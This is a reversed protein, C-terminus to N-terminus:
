RDRDHPIVVAADADWGLAITADPVPPEHRWTPASVTVSGVGEVEVVYLYSDGHYAWAGVRGVIRNAPQEAAGLIRIKEPRLTVAIAEGPQPGTGTRKQLLSFAGCRYAVADGEAREVRGEFFNSQGLFGAVFRSAPQDYLTKPAGRQVVRGDKLIVIEDSLSLAEQQDHTVYIFTLGVRAHLSKLELQMDTRLNKDLASLPEDLLVLSPEFVLARALAARQQQGGSLQRPLRDAFRSLQVADLARRVRGAIEARPRRRVRLPFAVNEAISLHPFLAYSQFVIGCNRKEPPLHEVPAGDLFIRGASPAVFGAITMLLTTKGSGSPGLLTLFQGRPVELSIDDLALQSGYRKSVADISLSNITM